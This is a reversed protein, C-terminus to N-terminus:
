QIARADINAWHQSSVLQRVADQRRAQIRHRSGKPTVDRLHTAWATAAQFICWLSGTAGKRGYDGKGHINQVETDFLANLNELQKKNVGAETPSKALTHAFLSSVERDSVPTNLWRQFLEPESSIAKAAAATKAHSASVSFNKTHRSATYAAKQGSVLTNYCFWNFYGFFAQYRWLANYSNRATYKLSLTHGGVTASHSPMTISMEAMAGNEYANIQCNSDSLDVGAKVLSDVAGAFADRHTVPKYRSGVIALPLPPRDPDVRWICSGMEPPIELLEYRDTGLALKSAVPRHEIPFDVASYDIQEAVDRSNDILM